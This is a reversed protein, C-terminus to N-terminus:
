RIVVGCLYFCVFYSVLDSEIGRVGFQIKFFDFKTRSFLLGSEDDCYTLRQNELIM